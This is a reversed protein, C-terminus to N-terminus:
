AMSRRLIADGPVSNCMFGDQYLALTALGETPTVIMTGDAMMGYHGHITKFGGNFAALLQGSTQIETPIIGLRSFKPTGKVAVPEATGPLLHLDALKLDVM